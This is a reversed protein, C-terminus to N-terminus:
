SVPSGQAYVSWPVVSCHFAAPTLEIADLPTLYGHSVGWQMDALTKFEHNIEGDTVAKPTFMVLYPVWAQNFDGGSAPVAVLHDHGKVGPAPTTGDMPVGPGYPSASGFMNGAIDATLESVLPGHDPCNEATGSPADLCNLPGVTSTIPYVVLYLPAWATPNTHFKAKIPTLLFTMNGSVDDYAPEISAQGFMTEGTPVSGADAPLVPLAVAALVSGVALLRTVRNRM